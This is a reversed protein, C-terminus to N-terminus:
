SFLNIDIMLLLIYFLWMRDFDFVSLSNVEEPSELDKLLDVPLFIMLRETTEDCFFLRVGM